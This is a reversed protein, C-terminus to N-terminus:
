SIISWRKFCFDYWIAEIRDVFLYIFSILNQKVLDLIM